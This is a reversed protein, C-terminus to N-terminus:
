KIEFIVQGDNTYDVPSVFRGNINVVYDPNSEAEKWNVQPMLIQAVRKNIDPNVITPIEKERGQRKLATATDMGERLAESIEIAQRQQTPTLDAWGNSFNKKESNPALRYKVAQALEGLGNLMQDYYESTERFGVAQRMQNITGDSMGFETGYSAIQDLLATGTELVALKEEDTRAGPSSQWDSMIIMLDIMSAPSEAKSPDIQDFKATTKELKRIFSEPINGAEKLRELKAPAYEVQSAVVDMVSQNFRANKIDVGADKIRKQAYKVVADYTKRDMYNEAMYREPALLQTTYYNKTESLKTDDNLILTDIYRKAAELQVDSDDLMARRERENYVYKGNHDRLESLEKLQQRQEGYLAVTLPRKAEAPLTGNELVLQYTSLRNQAIDQIAADAAEKNERDIKYLRNSEAKEVLGTANLLFQGRYKDAIEPPLDSFTNDIIKGLANSLNIPDSEFKKFADQAQTKYTNQAFLSFNANAARLQNDAMRDIFSTDIKTQPINLAQPTSPDGPAITRAM